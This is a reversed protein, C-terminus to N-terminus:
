SHDSIAGDDTGTTKKTRVMVVVLLATVVATIVSMIVNGSLILLVLSVLFTAATVAAGIFQTKKFPLMAGGVVQAAGYVILVASSFGYAGFFDVEQPMLMVKAAGSAIALLALLIVVITWVMKM